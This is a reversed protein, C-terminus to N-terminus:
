LRSSEFPMAKALTQRLAESSPRISLFRDQVWVMPLGPGAQQAWSLTADFEADVGPDQVTRDFDNMDLGLSAALKRCDDPKRSRATFLLAAMEEGKQQRLAALYARAAPRANEHRPMPAPIRILRCNMTDRLTQKMVPEFEACSSCDFDTLEVINIKGAEWRERVQPPAPPSATLMAWLIPLSPAILGLSIWASSKMWIRRGPASPNRLGITLAMLGIACSDVLVCLVCIRELIFFQIALLGCGAVGAALACVRNFRFAGRSSVLSLCFITAFGVFGIIPLPIGLPQAYASASVQGCDSRFSCFTPGFVSDSLSASCLALAALAILRYITWRNIM